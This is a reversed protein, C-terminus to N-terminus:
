ENNNNIITFDNKKNENNDIIKFENISADKKTSFDSLLANFESTQMLPLSGEIGFSNLKEEKKELNQEKKEDKKVSQPQYIDKKATM